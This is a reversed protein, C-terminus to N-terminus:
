IYMHSAYFVEFEQDKLNPVTKIFEFLYRVPDMKEFRRIVTQGDKILNKTNTYFYNMLTICIQGDFKGALRFKIM